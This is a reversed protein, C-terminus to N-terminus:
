GFNLQSWVCFLPRIGPYSDNQVNELSPEIGDISLANLKDSNANYFAYGFFGTGNPDAGIADALQQDDESLQQINSAKTIRTKNFDTVLIIEPVEVQEAMYGFSQNIISILLILLIIIATITAFVFLWRGFSGARRRGGIQSQMDDGQPYHNDEEVRNSIYNPDIM